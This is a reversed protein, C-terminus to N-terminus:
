DSSGILGAQRMLGVPYGYADANTRTLTFLVDDGAAIAFPSSVFDQYRDASAATFTNTLAVTTDTTPLVTVGNPSTPVRRVSLSLNPLTGPGKALVRLRISMTPDTVDLSEPVCIRSRLSTTVGAPFALYMVGGDFEVTVEDLRTSEIPLERDNANIVTIGVDGRYVQQPTTGITVTEVADGTLTVNGSKAYVGSAVPGPVFTQTAPDFQKFVTYGAAPEQGVAFHLNLKLLLPGATAERAPDTACLVQLRPDNSSLSTVAIADTFYSFKLFSLVLRRRANYCPDGDYEEAGLSVQEEVLQDGDTTLATPWPVQGYCKTMWWIGNRDFLVQGNVGTDVVVGDMELSANEPPLPPWADALARNAFLNYGFQANAPATGNFIAHNAPLWGEIATDPNTIVHPQNSAPPTTDGAPVAQLVFRQHTHDLVTDRWAPNVMVTGNGDYRLVPVPVPPKRRTLKGPATASLYYLGPGVVAGPEIAASLDLTERGYLIVNGLTANTKIAVVGYVNSTDAVTLSGGDNVTVASVAPAFRQNVADFYVPSGVTTDPSLSANWAYLASGAQTAAVRAELLAVLQALESVPRNATPAGVPEGDRVYDLNSDFNSSM